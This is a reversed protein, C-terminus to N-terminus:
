EVPRTRRSRVLERKKEFRKKLRAVRAKQYAAILPKSLFFSAVAVILGPAIGGILYPLFIGDFFAALSGWHAVEPTFMAMANHWLELSAGSFASVVGPLPVSPRGLLTTGVEM